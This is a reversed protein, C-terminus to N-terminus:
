LFIISDTDFYLLRDGLKELLEYLVLRAHTTTMAGM